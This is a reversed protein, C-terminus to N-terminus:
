FVKSIITGGFLFILGIVIGYNIQKDLNAFSSSVIAVVFLFMLLKRFDKVTNYIHKIQITFPKIIIFFLFWISQLFSTFIGINYGGALGFLKYLINDSYKFGNYMSAFFGVVSVGFMLLILIIPSFLFYIAQIFKTYNSGISFNSLRTQTTEQMNNLAEKVLNRSFIWNDQINTAFWNQLNEVLNQPPITKKYPFSKILSPVDQTYYPKANPNTPLYQETGMNNMAFLLNSGIITIIIINIINSLISNFFGSWNNEKTQGRNKMDRDKKIKKLRESSSSM